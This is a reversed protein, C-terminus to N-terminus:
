TRKFIYVLGARIAFNSQKVYVDAMAEFYWNRKTLQQKNLAIPKNWGGGFAIDNAGVLGRVRIFAEQIPYWRAGMVFSIQNGSSWYEVGGTATFKRSLFYNFEAGTQVKEFFSDYDSRVLDLSAGIMFDKAIQSFSNYSILFYVLILGLRKM